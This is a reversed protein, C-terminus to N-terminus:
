RHLSLLVETENSDILVRLEIVNPVRFDLDKKTKKRLFNACIHMSRRTNEDSVQQLQVGYTQSLHMTNKYTLKM